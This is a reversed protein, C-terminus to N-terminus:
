PPTALDPGIGAVTLYMRRTAEDPILEALLERLPLRARRILTELTDATPSNPEHQRFFTAVRALERLADERTNLPAPGAAVVPAAASVEIPPEPLPPAVRDIGPAAHPDPSGTLFETSLGSVHRLAEKADTLTNAITSSPPTYEGCLDDLRATMAAFTDACAALDAYIAAFESPSTARAAAALQVAEAAAAGKKRMVMYHWLGGAEGATASTIPALRLPQILAGENGLGNLGALPAVKGAVDDDDLSHLTDWYREILGDVVSLADRLGAFGDVRLAAELLWASVELDKGHASLVEDALTLIERWEPAVGGSEPEAETRREADRATARADKIRYYIPAGVGDNRVNIGAPSDPSIPALLRAVDLTM